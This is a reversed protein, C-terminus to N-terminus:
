PQPHTHTQAPPPQEVSECKSQTIDQWTTLKVWIGMFVRESAGRRERFSILSSDFKPKLLLARREGALGNSTASRQSVSQLIVEYWKAGLNDRKAM